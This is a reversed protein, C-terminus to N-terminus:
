LWTSTFYLLITCSPRIWCCLWLSNPRLQQNCLYVSLNSCLYHDWYQRWQIHVQIQMYLWEPCCSKAVSPLSIAPSNMIVTIISALVSQLHFCSINLSTNIISGQVLLNTKNRKFSSLHIVSIDHNLVSHSPVCAKFHANSQQSLTISQIIILGLM